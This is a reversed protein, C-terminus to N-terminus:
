GRKIQNVLTLYSEERDFHIEQTARAEYLNRRIEKCNADWDQPYDMDDAGWSEEIAKLIYRDKKQEWERIFFQDDGNKKFQNINSQCVMAAALHEEAMPNSRLQKDRMLQHYDKFNM